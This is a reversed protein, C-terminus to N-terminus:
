ICKQFKIIDTWITFTDIEIFKWFGNETVKFVLTFRQVNVHSRWSINEIWGNDKLVYFILGDEMERTSVISTEALIANFSYNNSHLRKFYSKSCKRSWWITLNKTNKSILKKQIYIDLVDMENTLENSLYHCNFCSKFIFCCCDIKLNLNLNLILSCFKFTM